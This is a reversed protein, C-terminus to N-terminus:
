SYIARVPTHFTWEDGGCCGLRSDRLPSNFITSYPCNSRKLALLLALQPQRSEAADSYTRRIMPPYSGEEWQHM